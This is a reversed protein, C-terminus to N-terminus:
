TRERAYFQDSFVESSDERVVASTWTEVANGDDIGIDEVFCCRTVLSALLTLREASEISDRISDLITHHVLALSAGSAGRREVRQNGAM